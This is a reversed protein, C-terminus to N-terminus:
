EMPENIMEMVRGLTHRMVDASIADLTIGGAELLTRAKSLDPEPFTKVPYARLWAEVKTRLRSNREISKGLQGALTTDVRVQRTDAILKRYAAGTMKIYVTDTDAPEHIPRDDLDRAILDTM